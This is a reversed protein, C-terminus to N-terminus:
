AIFTVTVDNARVTYNVGSVFDSGLPVTDEVEHHEIYVVDLYLHHWGEVKTNMWHLYFLEIQITNGVHIIRYRASNNGALGTSAVDAFYQRPSSNDAWIGIHDVGVLVEETRLGSVDALIALVLLAGLLVFVAGLILSVIRNM